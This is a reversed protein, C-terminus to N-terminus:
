KIDFFNEELDYTDGSSPMNLMQTILSHGFRYAATAFVNHVSADKNDDYASNLGHPVTDSGLVIPLFENYVINQLEAVVIRRAEQYIKEDNWSFLSEIEAAVRPFLEKFCAMFWSLYRNHERVFITHLSTLGPNETVRRSIM